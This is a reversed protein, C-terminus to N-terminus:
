YDWRKSIKVANDRTRFPTFWLSKHMTFTYILIAFKWVVNLWKQIGFMKFLNELNNKFIRVSIRYLNSNFNHLITEVINLNSIYHIIHMSWLWHCTDSTCLFFKDWCHLVHTIFTHTNASVVYYVFIISFLRRPLTGM